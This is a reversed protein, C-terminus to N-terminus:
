DYKSDILFFFFYFNIVCNNCHFSSTMGVIANFYSFPWVSDKM